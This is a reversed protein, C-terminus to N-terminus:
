LGYDEGSTASEAEAKEANVKDQAKKVKAVDVESDTHDIIVCQHRNEDDKGKYVIDFKEGIEVENNLMYALLGFCWIGVKEGDAKRFYADFSENKKGKYERTVPRMEILEVDEGFFPEDLKEAMATAGFMPCTKREREKYKM